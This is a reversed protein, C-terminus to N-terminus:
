LGSPDVPDLSMLFSEDVKGPLLVLGKAAAQKGASQAMSLLRLWFEAVM